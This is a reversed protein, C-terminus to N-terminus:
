VVYISRPCRDRKNRYEVSFKDNKSIKMNHFPRFNSSKLFNHPLGLVTTWVTPNKLLDCHHLSKKPTFFHSISKFKRISLYLFDHDAYTEMKMCILKRLEPDILKWNTTVNKSFCLNNSPVIFSTGLFARNLHTVFFGTCMLIAIIEFYILQYLCDRIFFLKGAFFEWPFWISCWIALIM